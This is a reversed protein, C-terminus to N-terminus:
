PSATIAMNGLASWSDLFQEVSKTYITDGNLYSVTTATYATVIVTHEYRAVITPLWDSPTYYVPIGNEVSGVIWVMVPRKAAIEAQLDVWRLPRHAYALLGYSRLVEAVPEAHVGYANPPIQGWAGYVSGVFGKDPNDSHPLKNYFKIEDITIGFYGAWDVASRSECDLPLSQDEGSIAGIKASAPAWPVPPPATPPPPSASISSALCWSNLAGTDNAYRDSVNLRWEGQIADGDFAGLAAQPLYIGSIAAPTVACKDEVPSTIEDDLIAKVNNEGCGLSSAPKGPRHLLTISKQTEQHSLSVILDGVWAHSIDLSVDLDVIIRPDAVQLKHTIGTSNNDPITIPSHISSCFLLREPPIVPPPTSKYILPLYISLTPTVSTLPLSAELTATFLELAPLPTETPTFTQTLTLEPTASAELTPSLIPTLTAPTAGIIPETESPTTEQLPAPTESPAAEQALIPAANAAVAMGPTSFAVGAALAGLGLLYAVLRRRQNKRRMTESLGEEALPRRRGVEQSPALM